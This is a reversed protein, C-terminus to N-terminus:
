NLKASVVAMMGAAMRKSDEASLDCFDIRIPIRQQIKVFNGTSNDAPVLSYKAGTADSIASIHGKFTKDKIADIRVEVEQGIFLNEVQTEKYNAIIWKQSSPIMYTITQGANVLQGEELSRRGLYGDVPATVITYSLNLLAMDLNARARLIAAEANGKRTRVEKSTSTATIKQKRLADRRALSMDLETKIQEVQIPTAADRKQLNQYRIYDKQLKAIKAEVEAISADYVDVNNLTTLLTADLVHDGSEADKLAAEAEMVRIKYERDDIVLLTDGKHVFQHETFYIKYIYGPVRVNVPSVYQEVQADNTIENTKFNLFLNVALYIGYIIAVLGIASLLWRGTRLAKLKKLEKQHSESVSM